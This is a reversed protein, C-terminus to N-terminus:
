PGVWAKGLVQEHALDERMGQGVLKRIQQLQAVTASEGPRLRSSLPKKDGGDGDGKILLPSPTARVQQAKGKVEGTTEVKGSRKLQTLCNVVTGHALGTMEALDDPYAPGAQLAKMVRDKSNLTTETALDADDLEVPTATIKEPGFELRVDFPDLRAGFNSKKHRVRVDLVGLDRDRDGAEVQLVSRSLHEKYASGFATKQQYNEGVQLKGQHDIILPTSGIARFPSIYENHFRIVDRAAEMDGLMAPGLSDIVVMVVDHARCTEFAHGFAEPTGMGLASLYALDSPVPIGMGAALAHVRRLQEDADLEFDLYLVKGHTHVDLGLWHPRNGAIAMGMLLALISKATGSWGHIVTPHSRPVVDGVLFERAKPKGLQSLWVLPPEKGGGDGNRNIPSPSPPSTRPWTYTDKLGRLAKDITRRRYDPRNRWKPRQGLASASVLQELQEPDQTYFALLSTLAQDARSDDGGYASTDGADFLDSFKAANRAKRCLEIVVGDGAAAAAAHGNTAHHGNTDPEAPPFHQRYFADLETQREPIRETV